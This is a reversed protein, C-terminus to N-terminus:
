MGAKSAPERTGIWLTCLLLFGLGVFVSVAGEALPGVHGLPEGGRNKPRAAYHAYAVVDSLEKDGIAATGFAPMWGPGVRIAEAIQTPTSPRISPAERQSLAGGTGAWSHCAACNLRYLDGGRAIDARATDIRPIDPGTRGTLVWVYEILARITEPSYRPHHRTPVDDPEDLPMRGTTLYYDLGARGTGVLTPGRDSGGGSGGHCVACDERYLTAVAREDAQAPAQAGASRSALTAGAVGAALPLALMLLWLSRRM